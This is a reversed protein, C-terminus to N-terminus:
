YPRIIETTAGHANEVYAGNWFHTTGAHSNALQEGDDAIYFVEQKNNVDNVVSVERVKNTRMTPKDDSGKARGCAFVEISTAEVIRTTHGRYLKVTLMKKKEKRRRFKGSERFRKKGL